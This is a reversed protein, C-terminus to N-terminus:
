KFPLRRTLSASWARFRNLPPPPSEVVDDNRRFVVGFPRQVTQGDAVIRVVIFSSLANLAELIQRLADDKDQLPPTGPARAERRRGLVLSLSLESLQERQSMYNGSVAVMKLQYPNSVWEANIREALGCAEAILARARARSLPAVVCALAYQRFLRTPLYGGAGDPHLLGGMLFERQLASTAPGDLHFDEALSRVDIRRQGPAKASLRALAREAGARLAQAELGFYTRDAVLRRITAGQLALSRDPAGLIVTSRFGSAAEVAASPSSRSNSKRAPIDSSGLNILDVDSAELLADCSLSTTEIGRLPGRAM